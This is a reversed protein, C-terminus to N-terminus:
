FGRKQSAWPPPRGERFEQVSPGGLRRLRWIGYVYSAALVLVIAPWGLILNLTGLALTADRQFLVFQIVLRGAFFFFWAMTVESYAPRVRPHWYWNLPWRRALFSTWAVLPRRVVVSLLCSASLVAGSAMGPLFFGEERSLGFALLAAVSVAVLGLWAFRLSQRRDIRLILTILALGIASGIAPWIGFALNALVFLLPPGLADLLSRQGLIVSQLEDRLEKLRPSM